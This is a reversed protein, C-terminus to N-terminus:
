GQGFDILLDRLSQGEDIASHNRILIPHARILERAHDNLADPQHPVIVDRQSRIKVAPRRKRALDVVNAIIGFHCFSELLKAVRFLSDALDKAQVPQPDDPLDGLPTRSLSDPGISRSPRWTWRWEM